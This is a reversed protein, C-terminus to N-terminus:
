GVLQIEGHTGSADADAYYSLNGDAWRALLDEQKGGGFSGAMLPQAYKWASGQPRLSIGDRFGRADLGPFLDTRGDKRRVIVDDADKGTFRGSTIQADVRTKDASTLRTEKSVGNLGADAYMSTSGDAWLVVLDDRRYKDTHRGAALSRANKWSDRYALTKEYGFGSENVESFTSVKGSRWRVALGGGGGSQNVSIGTVAEADKWYSGEPALKHEKLFPYKADQQGSGEFLSASGDAWVVFLDSREEGSARSFNGATVHVADKWNVRSLVNRSAVAKIWGAIDDVRTESATRRKEPADTGFCGAQGSTSHIAALAAFSGYQALVPGGTDGQCVAADDSEGTISVTTGTAPGVRFDAYHLYDPVWEDKTRGYGIAKVRENEAPLSNAIDAIPRVGTVPKAPRAMVLDRDERPVLEVVDVVAGTDERRLDTRGITATTKGKPAGALIKFGKAPDEAFCSAATILWEQQVLTGSCSRMGEDIDLKATYAYTGDAVPEGALAHAPAATLLSAAAASALLGAGWAARPRNGPM